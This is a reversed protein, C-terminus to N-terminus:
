KYPLRALAVRVREKLTRNNREATPKHDGAATPDITVGMDDLMTSRSGEKTRIGSKLKDKLQKMEREQHKRRTAVRNKNKNASSGSRSSPWERPKKPVQSLNLGSMTAQAYTQGSRTVKAVQPTEPEFVIEQEPPEQLDELDTVLSGFIMPEEILMKKITIWIPWLLNKRKMAKMVRITTMQNMTMMEKSDSLLNRCIMLMM